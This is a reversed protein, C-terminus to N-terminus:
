IGGRIYLSTNIGIEAFAKEIVWVLDELERHKSYEIQIDGTPWVDVHFERSKLRICGKREYPYGTEVDLNYEKAIEEIVWKFLHEKLKTLEPM